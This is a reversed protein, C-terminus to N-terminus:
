PASTNGFGEDTLFSVLATKLMTVAEALSLLMRTAEDRPLTLLRPLDLAYVQQAVDPRGIRELLTALHGLQDSLHAADAARAGLEAVHQVISAEESM